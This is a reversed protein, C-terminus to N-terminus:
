PRAAGTRKKLPRLVAHEAADLFVSIQRILAQGEQKLRRCEAPKIVNDAMIEATDRVLDGFVGITEILEASVDEPSAQGDHLPYAAHRFREALYYLPALADAPDVGMELSTAIITEIRDLPNYAGSDSFDTSPEQWKHVLSLSLHLEKAHEKTYRGICTDLAEFSQLSKM